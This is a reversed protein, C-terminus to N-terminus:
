LVLRVLWRELWEIVRARMRPGVAHAEIIAALPRERPAEPLMMSLWVMCRQAASIAMSVLRSHWWYERVLWIEILLQISSSLLVM